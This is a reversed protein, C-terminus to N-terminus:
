PETRQQRAFRHGPGPNSRRGRRESVHEIRAHRVHERVDALGDGRHGAPAEFQQLVVKAAEVQEPKPAELHPGRRMALRKRERVTGAGRRLDHKRQVAGDGFRRAVRQNEAAVREAVKGGAEDMNLPGPVVRAPLVPLPRAIHPDIREGEAHRLMMRKVAMVGIADADGVVDRPSEVPLPQLQEGRAAGRQEDGGVGGDNRLLVATREDVRERECGLRRRRGLREVPQIASARVFPLRRV